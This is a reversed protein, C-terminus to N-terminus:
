ACRDFFGVSENQHQWGFLTGCFIVAFRPLTAAPSEAACCGALLTALNAGQSFGLIGDFPEAEWAARVHSVAEAIGKYTDDRM